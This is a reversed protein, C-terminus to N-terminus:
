ERGPQRAARATETEKSFKDRRKRLGAVPDAGLNKLDAALTDLATDGLAARCVAARDSAERLAEAASDLGALQARLSELEADKARMSSDLEQAEESKADLGALDTVGAAALHPEVERSWRDELNRAKEQAERRGGRVHVTAIDGIGLEVEARAEIDVPQRDSAVDVEQGDKRVRLDFRSKPTVTVVLGVDLAGRAAALEHALQRMPGLASPPPVTIAARRGALGARDHSVTELRGNLESQKDVTAQAEAVRKDAAQVDLARELVDCQRLEEEAITLKATAQSVAEGATDPKQRRTKIIM